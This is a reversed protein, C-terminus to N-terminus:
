SITTPSSKSPRPRGDSTEMPLKESQRVCAFDKEARPAEFKKLKLRDSSPRGSRTRPARTVCVHNLTM